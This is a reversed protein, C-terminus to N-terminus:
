NSNKDVMISLNCCHLMAYAM